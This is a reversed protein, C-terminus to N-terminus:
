TAKTAGNGLQLRYSTYVFMLGCLLFLLVRWITEVSSLDVILLRCVVAIMTLAGLKLLLGRGDGQRSALLMAAGAVAFSMSVLPPWIVGLVRALILLLTGYGALAVLVGQPEDDPDRSAVRWFWLAAALVVGEAMVWRWDISRSSFQILEYLVVVTLCALGTAKALGRAVHLAQRALFRIAFVAHLVTVILLVYGVNSVLRPGVDSAIGLSGVLTWVVAASAQVSRTETDPQAEALRYAEIGIAVAVLGWVWGSVMPWTLSLRAIALMPAALTMVWVAPADSVSSATYLHSGLAMLRRRMIPVITFAAGAVIVIITTVLREGTIRTGNISRLDVLQFAPLFIQTGIFTIWLVSQWGRMLYLGLGVACLSAVYFSLGILAHTSAPLLSPAAFGVGVAILAFVLRREKLALWAAAISLTLFCARASTVSILQYYIAAAYSTMYWAAIGGGLLIERLGPQARSGAPRQETLRAGATILGAGVIMGTLVRILPTIWNHDVAYRYLLFLAVVLFLTGLAGIWSAVRKELDPTLPSTM